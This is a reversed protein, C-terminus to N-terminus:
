ADIVQGDKPKDDNPDNDIMTSPDPQNAADNNTAAFKKIVKGHNRKTNKQKQMM